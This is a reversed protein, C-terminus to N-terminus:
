KLVYCCPVAATENPPDNESCRELSFLRALDLSNHLGSVRRTEVFLSISLALIAFLRVVANM